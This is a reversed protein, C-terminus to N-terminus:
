WSRYTCSLADTQSAQLHYGAVELGWCTKTISAPWPAIPSSSCKFNFHFSAEPVLSPYPVNRCEKIIGPMTQSDVSLSLPVQSGCFARQETIICVGHVEFCLPYQFMVKHVDDVWCEGTRIDPLRETLTQLQTFCIPAKPLLSQLNKPIWWM